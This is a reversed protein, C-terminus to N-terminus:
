EPVFNYVIVGSVKVAKGSLLTPSFKSARAASVAAARLLPHGSVANALIVNGKEDVIVQVNVAGAARVAKAAAPYPPKVLNTAKSNIVGGSITKPDNTSSAPPVNDASTKVDDTATTMPFTAQDQDALDNRGLKRYAEARKEYSLRESSDRQIAKTFDEVAAEFNGLELNLEGRKQHLSAGCDDKCLEVSKTLDALVKQRTDGLFWSKEYVMARAFFVQPDESKLNIAANFDELASELSGRAASESRQALEDLARQFYMKGRVGLAHPNQSDLRVAEMAADFACQNFSNSYRDLEIHKYARTIYEESTQPEPEGPVSCNYQKTYKALPNSCALGGILLLSIGLCFTFLNKM